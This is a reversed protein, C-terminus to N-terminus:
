GTEGNRRAQHARALLAKLVVEDDPSLSDVFGQLLARRDHSRTLVARFGTSVVDVEDATPWYAHSRGSKERAVLGKDHLRGLITAVTTYALQGDLAAQIQGTTLPEEAAWLVALVDGELQGFARRGSADTERASRRVM